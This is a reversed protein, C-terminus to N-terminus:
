KKLTAALANTAAVKTQIKKLMSKDGKSLVITPAVKPAAMAAKMVSPSSLQQLFINITATVARIAATVAPANAGFAPAAVKAFAATINAIKVPNTDTSNLEAISATVAGDVGTAYLQVQDAVSQDVKGTAVLTSTVVVAVNAADAVANLATVLTSPTVTGGCGALLLVSVLLVSVISKLM